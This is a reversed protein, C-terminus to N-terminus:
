ARAAGRGSDDRPHTFPDSIAWLAMNAAVLVITGPILWIGGTALFGGCGGVYMLACGMAPSRRVVLAGGISILAMLMAVWGHAGGTRSSFTEFIGGFSVADLAALAALFSLLGGIGGLVACAPRLRHQLSDVRDSTTDQTSM